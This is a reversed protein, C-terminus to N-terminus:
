SAATKRKFTFGFLGIAFQVVLGLGVLVCSFYPTLWSPNHVVQLVTGKEDEHDWDAQYFTEGGYRLPENMKILVERSEGTDPRQLLVRSSFNKAVDTGAYRDFRFELLQLSFPKYYRRLRMMLEYTHHNFTFGQTGKLMESVLWTGLSGQPTVIEVVAAPVDRTNMATVRPLEKVTAEPGIGQTAAGPATSNPAKNDVQANAYFRQVRVAFPLESVRVDGQRSLIGQPVAVVTDLDPETTDIIALEQQTPSESYNKPAGHVSAERLHLFSERALMDTMFQGLLLLILGFHVMWIGLKNITFRFRKFHATVLNILLVSGVLYGAPFVPLKWSAGAPGWWVFFSRFYDNQAKYLGLDVQAITGAFVLLLGIGLCVVTLRLSSFFDFVRNLLADFGSGSPPEQSGPGADKPQTEQAGLKRQPRDKVAAGESATAKSVSAVPGRPLTLRSDAKM